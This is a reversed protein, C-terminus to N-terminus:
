SPLLITVLGGGGDRTGMRVTGGHAKAVAQVISLGLGASGELDHGNGFGPGTDLVSIEVGHSNSRAAITVHGEQPTHRIANDVLNSVAQRIRTPDMQANPGAAADVELSVGREDARPQFGEAVRNLLAGIDVAERRIPLAGGRLRSLVLLDEALRVLSDVENACSRLAAQLEDQTRARSLALDLEGKLVSLPTRLEHSARDLFGRESQMSRQLRELMENLTSALRRLEDHAQPLSLRREPESVSIAQAELRMREVPRLAAGAVIWGLGTSILLASAGGLLLEARLTSVAEERDDLTRATVIFAEPSRPEGSTTPIAFVRLPHDIAPVRTEVFIGGPGPLRDVPLFPEAAFASASDLVSGDSGVVQSLADDADIIAADATLTDGREVTAAVFQAQSMLGEDISETLDRHLRYQLFAGLAVVVVAMGAAFALTLRWRLPLRSLMPPM